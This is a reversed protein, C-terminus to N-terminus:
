ALLARLRIATQGGAWDHMTEFGDPQFGFEAYFARARANDGFVWLVADRWGDAHLRSIAAILLDSGIGSRWQRPDVYTAAVETTQEGTDEDRGPAAVTCFGVLQQEIDIAVLTFSEGGTNELIRRWSEERDDVSLRALLDDPLLGRYATRWAHFHVEAIAAVRGALSRTGDSSGGEWLYVMRRRPAVVWAPNPDAQPVGEVRIPRVFISERSPRSVAESTRGARTRAGTSKGIDSQPRTEDAAEASAAMQLLEPQALRPLSSM